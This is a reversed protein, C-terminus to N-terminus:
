TSFFMRLRSLNSFGTALQHRPWRRRAPMRKVRNLPPREPWGLTAIAKVKDEALEPHGRGNAIACPRVSSRGDQNVQISPHYSVQRSIAVRRAKLIPEMDTTRYDSAM